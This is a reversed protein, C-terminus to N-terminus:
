TGVSFFLTLFFSEMTKGGAEEVFGFKQEDFEPHRM